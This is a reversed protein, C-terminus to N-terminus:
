SKTLSFFSLYLSMCFKTWPRGYVGDSTEPKKLSNMKSSRDIYLTVLINLNLISLHVTNHLFKRYICLNANVLRLDNYLIRSVLNPLNRINVNKLRLTKKLVLQM